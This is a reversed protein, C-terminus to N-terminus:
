KVYWESMTGKESLEGRTEQEIRCIYPIYVFSSCVDLQKRSQEAIKAVEKEIEVVQKRPV